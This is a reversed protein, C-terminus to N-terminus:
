AIRLVKPFFFKKLGFQGGEVSLVIKRNKESFGILDIRDIRWVRPSYTHVLTPTSTYLVCM